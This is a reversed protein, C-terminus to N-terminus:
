PHHMPASSKADHQLGIFGQITCPGACHTQCHFLLLLLQQLSACIYTEMCAGHSASMQFALGGDVTSQESVMTATSHEARWMQYWCGEGCWRMPPTGQHPPSSFHSEPRMGSASRATTHEVRCATRLPPTFLVRRTPAMSGVVVAARPMLAAAHEGRCGRCPLVAERRARREENGEDDVALGM